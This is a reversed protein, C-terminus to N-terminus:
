NTTVKHVAGVSLIQGREGRRCLEPVRGSYPILLDVNPIGLYESVKARDVYGRESGFSNCMADKTVQSIFIVVHSGEPFFAKFKSKLEPDVEPQLYYKPPGLAVVGPIIQETTDLMKHSEVADFINRFEEPLVKANVVISGNSDELNVPHPSASWFEM